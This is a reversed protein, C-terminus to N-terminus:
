VSGQCSHRNLDTIQQDRHRWRTEICTWMSICGSYCQWLRICATRVSSNHIHVLLLSPYSMLPSASTCGEDKTTCLCVEEDSNALRQSHWQTQLQDSMKWEKLPEEVVNLDCGGMSPGGSESSKAKKLRREISCPECTSSFCDIRSTNPLTPAARQPRSGRLSHRETGTSALWGAAEMRMRCVCM